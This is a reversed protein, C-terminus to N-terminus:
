PSRARWRALEDFTVALVGEGGREMAIWTIALDAFERDLAEASNGVEMILLGEPSLYDAAQQLIRRACDLGDAGATLALTPEHGFEPPMQELDRADVYPPNSLILDYETRRPDLANFLDSEITGVREGVGHLEINEEALSLVEPSIDVLDVSTDPSWLATAIGICGSGTCMDLVRRIPPGSYWPEFGKEILEGLPSRPVIARRDIKFALGAFWARGTIYPLPLRLEVRQVIYDVTREREAMLLRSDLVAADLAQPWHLAGQLLALCEDWANDTGHGFYLGRETMVSTGWRLFDRVTILQEIVERSNIKM